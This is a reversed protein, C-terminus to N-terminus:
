GVSCRIQFGGESTHFMDDNICPRNLLDFLETAVNTVRQSAQERIAKLGKIEFCSSVGDDTSKM